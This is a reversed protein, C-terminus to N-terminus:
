RIKGIMLYQGLRPHARSIFSKPLTNLIGSICSIVEDIEGSPEVFDWEKNGAKYWWYGSGLVCIANLSPNTDAEKDKEKYRELESKGGPKLDSSFAFFLSIIPTVIHPMAQDDVTFKGSTYQLKRIERAKGIADDLEGSTAKSKVEIAYFSAEAPFIGERETFLVPPLINKSYIILDIEPTQFGQYDVIKGNGVEFGGPLLPKIVNNLAIERVKGRLYAHNLRSADDFERRATKILTILKDRYFMNAM